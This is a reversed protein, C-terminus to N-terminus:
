FIHRVHPDIESGSAYSTSLSGVSSGRGKHNQPSAIRGFIIRDSNILSVTLYRKVENLFM